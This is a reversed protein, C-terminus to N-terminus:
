AKHAMYDRDWSSVKARTSYFYGSVISLSCLTIWYFLFCAVHPGCSLRSVRTRSCKCVIKVLGPYCEYLFRIFIVYMCTGFKLGNDSLIPIFIKVSISGFKIWLYRLFVNIYYLQTPGMELNCPYNPILM